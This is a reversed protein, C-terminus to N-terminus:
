SRVEEIGVLPRRTTPLRGIEEFSGPLAEGVLRDGIGPRARGLRGVRHLVVAQNGM